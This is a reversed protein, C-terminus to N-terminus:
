LPHCQLVPSIPIEVIKCPSKAPVGSFAKALSGTFVLSAAKKQFQSCHGDNWMNKHCSSWDIWQKSKFQSCWCRIETFSGHLKLAGSRQSPSLTHFILEISPHWNWKSKQLEASQGCCESVLCQGDWKWQTKELSLVTKNDFDNTFSCTGQGGNKGVHAIAEAQLTCSSVQMQPQVAKPLQPFPVAIRESVVPVSQNKGNSCNPVMFLLQEHAFLVFLLSKMCNKLKCQVIRTTGLEVAVALGLTNLVQSKHLFTWTRISCSALAHIQSFAGKRRKQWQNTSGLTTVAKRISLDKSHPKICTGLWM